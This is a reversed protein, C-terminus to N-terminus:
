RAVRGCKSFKWLDPSQGYFFEDPREFCLESDQLAKGDAVGVVGSVEYTAPADVAVETVSMPLEVVKAM